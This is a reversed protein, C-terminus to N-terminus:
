SCVVEGRIGHVWLLMDGWSGLQYGSPAHEGGWTDWNFVPAYKGGVNGHIIVRLLKVEGRIGHIPVM